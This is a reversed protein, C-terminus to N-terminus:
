VRGSCSCQMEASLTHSRYQRLLPVEQSDARTFLDGSLCSRIEPVQGEYNFHPAM